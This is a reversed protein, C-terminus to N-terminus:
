LGKGADTTKLWALFREPWDKATGGPPSFANHGGKDWAELRVPAGSKKWAAEIEESFSFPASADDRAHLLLAPPAGAPVPYDTIKKGAPWPCAMVAFDPRTPLRDLPDAADAQGPQPHTALNLVLNGGASWGLIGVTKLGWEEARSRVIRIARSADALTDRQINKSAPKLRYKLSIVTYGQPVFIEASGAGRPGSAIQAYAGGSCVILAVGNRKEKLPLYVDISPVSVNKVRGGEGPVEPGPDGELGPAPGDWLRITEDPKVKPKWEQKKAAPAAPANPDDALASTTSMSITAAVIAAALCARLSFLVNSDNM